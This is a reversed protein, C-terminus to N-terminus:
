RRTFGVLAALLLLVAGGAWAMAGPGFVQPAQRLYDGLADASPLPIGMAQAQDRMRLTGWALVGVAGGGALLALLRSPAGVAALLAFLGALVFTSLYVLLPAPSEQVFRGLSDMTPDLGKVIDWPVLRLGSTAPNLWPLFLGAVMALAALLAVLRM